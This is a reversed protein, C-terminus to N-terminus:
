KTALALQKYANFKEIRLSLNRESFYDDFDFSNNGKFRRGLIKAALTLGGVGTSDFANKAVTKTKESLTLEVNDICSMTLDRNVSDGLLHQCMAKGIYASILNENEELCCAQNFEVLAQRIYFETNSTSSNLAARLNNVASRFPAHLLKQVNGGVSEILGFYAAISTAFNISEFIVAPSM